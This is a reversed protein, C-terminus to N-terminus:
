AKGTTSAFTVEQDPFFAKCNRILCLWVSPCLLADPGSPKRQELSPRQLSSAPCFKLPEQCPNELYTSAKWMAYSYSM